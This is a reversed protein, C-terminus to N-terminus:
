CFNPKIRCTCPSLDSFPQSVCSRCLKGHYGIWVDSTALWDHPARANWNMQQSVQDCLACRLVFQESIIGGEVLLAQPQREEVGLRM